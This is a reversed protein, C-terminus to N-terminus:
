FRGKFVKVHFNRLFNSVSKFENFYRDLKDIGLLDVSKISSENNKEEEFDRQPENNVMISRKHEHLKPKFVFNDDDHEDVRHCIVINFSVVLCVLSIVRICM